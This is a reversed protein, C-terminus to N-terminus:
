WHPRACVFQVIQLGKQWNAIAKEVAETSELAASLFPQTTAYLDAGLLRAKFGQIPTRIGGSAILLKNQKIPAIARVAAETTVGINKFWKTFDTNEARMAEVWAYSTGGVGAVDIGAAGADFLAQATRADIGHGVEKILVPVSVDSIVKQIKHLLNSFDTDGGPQIAEQLTNIHLYLADAQLMDIVAQYHSSNYGYNLQVAGMNAILVATPANKRISTFTEVVEPKELAIRQSGVGLAVGMSEAAQALHTNIKKGHETGGTMSSIILPQSLTKGFLKTQTSVSDLSMEPLATYPLEVGAFADLSGQSDQNLCLNIHQGKRASIGDDKSFEAM